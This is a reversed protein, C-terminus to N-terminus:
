KQSFFKYFDCENQMILGVRSDLIQNECALEQKMFYNQKIM